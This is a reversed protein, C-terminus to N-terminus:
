DSKQELLGPLEYLDKIVWKVGTEKLEEVTFTGARAIFEISNGKAREYDKQSDGVFILKDAGVAFYKMIAEFHPKGKGFKKNKYGCVLDVKLGSYELYNEIIHQANSSSIALKYGKNALEQFVEWTEPYLSYKLMNEEKLHEFEAVIENNKEKGPFLLEMQECFPIGSTLLFLRKSIALSLGYADNILKGAFNALYGMSDVITGDLDFVIVKTM